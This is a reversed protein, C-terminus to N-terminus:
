RRSRQAPASRPMLSGDPAKVGVVVFITQPWSETEGEAFVCETGSDVSRRLLLRDNEDRIQVEFRSASGSDLQWRVRSFPDEGAKPELVRVSAGLPQQHVRDDSSGFYWRAGFLFSAALVTIWGIRIRRARISPAAGSEEMVRRLTSEVRDIGPGHTVDKEVRVMTRELEGISELDRELSDKASNPDEQSPNM